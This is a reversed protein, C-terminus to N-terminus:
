NKTRAAMTPSTCPPVWASLRESKAEMVGAVLRRLEEAEVTHELLEGADEPREKEREGDAHGTRAPVGDQGDNGEEHYAPDQQEEDVYVLAPARGPLCLRQGGGQSSTRQGRM